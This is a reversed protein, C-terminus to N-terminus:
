GNPIDSLFGRRWRFLASPTDHGEWTFAAVVSGEPLDRLRREATPDQWPLPLLALTPTSTSAKQPQSWASASAMVPLASLERSRAIFAERFARLSADTERSSSQQVSVGDIGSPIAFLTCATEWALLADLVAPGAIGGPSGGDLISISSPLAGHRLLDIVVSQCAVLCALAAPDDCAGLVSELYPSIRWKRGPGLLTECAALAAQFRISERESM